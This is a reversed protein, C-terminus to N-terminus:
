DREIAILVRNSRRLSGDMAPMQVELEARGAAIAEPLRVTVQDVGAGLRTVSIVEAAIGDITVVPNTSVNGAYTRGLGSSMISVVEGPRAARGKVTPVRVTLEDTEDVVVTGHGRETGDITFIGPTVEEMEAQLVNSKRDGAQVAIDLRAGPQFEPCEFMVQVPSAVMVRVAEGNVYVLTDGPASTALGSGTIIAAAGPSCLGTSSLTAGNLVSEIVPGVNADSQDSQLSRTASSLTKTGAISVDSVVTKGGYVASIRVTQSAAAADSYAVFRGNNTGAAITVTPSVQIAVASSTTAVTVAATPTGNLYAKCVLLAGATLPNPTCTVSSAQLPAITINAVAQSSGSSATVKGTGTAATLATTASFSVSYAGAPVTASLPVTVSALSSSLQVTSGAAPAVAALTVVCKTSTGGILSAPCDLRSIGVGAAGVTVQTTKTIGALGATVTITSTGTAAATATFQASSSGANIRLTAPITLASGSKSLAVDVGAAATTTLAATCTTSSGNAISAPACAISSLTPTAVLAVTANVSTANWTATIRATADAQLATATATFTAKSSDAAITVSAPITLKLTNTVLSVTAVTSTAGTLTVTCTASAGATLATPNCAVGALSVVTPAATLRVTATVSRASWTGTVVIDTNATVATAATATFTGSAAGAPITVSPPVALKTNSSTLSVIAGGAPAVQSLTATCTAAGPAALSAPSCTLSSLVPASTVPVTITGGSATTPINTGAASASMAGTVSIPISTTTPAAVVQVTVSAVPGNAILNSNLGSLVCITSGTTTRCQVTKGASVASSGAAVVVSSINSAAYNLTWQLGAPQGGSATLSLPVVVTGGPTGSASGLSLVNSQGFCPSFLMLCMLAAHVAAGLGYRYVNQAFTLM